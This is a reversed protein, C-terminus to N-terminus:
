GENFVEFGLKLLLDVGLGWEEEPGLQVTAGPGVGGVPYPVDVGSRLVLGVSADAVLDERGSRALGVPMFVLIKDGIEKSRIHKFDECTQLAFISLKFISNKSKYILM